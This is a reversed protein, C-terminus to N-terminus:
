QKMNVLTQMLQDMTSIMKSNAEYGSQAAIMKVFQDSLDVNSEELSGSNVSGLGGTQPKGILAEGSDVTQAYLNGDLQQLNTPSDFNALIVQGLTKKQGNTFTGSIVGNKDLTYNELSGAPSGDATINEVASDSAFQTTGDLGTTGGEDYTATGYDFTIPQSTAFPFTIAPDQSDSYLAGSSTFYLNQTGAITPTGSTNDYVYTAKWNDVSTPSVNTGNVTSTAGLNTFYATVQHAVGQVDYVKVTTSYGYNAPTGGSGGTLNFAATVPSTSDLNLKMTVASTAVPPIQSVTLNINGITGTINGSSDVQYGQLVDGQSDVVNGNKDMSFEGARTYREGSSGNVVFFGNGEIAMDLANSTTELAGQTFQPTVNDVRAGSGVQMGSVEASLVDGFLTNSGKFGVTNQNAINNGIVSLAADESNLGSVATYMSSIM